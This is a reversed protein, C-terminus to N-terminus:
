QKENLLPVINELVTMVPKKKQNYINIFLVMIEDKFIVDIFAKFRDMDKYLEGIKLLDICENIFENETELELLREVIKAMTAEEDFHDAVPHNQVLCETVDFYYNEITTIIELDTLKRAEIKMQDIYRENHKLLTQGILNWDIGRGIGLCKLIYNETGVYDNIGSRQIIIPDEISQGYGGSIPLDIGFDKRLLEKLTM